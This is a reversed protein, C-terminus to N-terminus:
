NRGLVKPDTGNNSLPLPKFQALNHLRGVLVHGEYEVWAHAELSGQGERLVGIRLESPQGLRSLLARTALAQPLCTAKGPVCRAAATVAWAVRGALPPNLDALVMPKPALRDLTRLVTRFPLWRLATKVLFVIAFAGGLLLRESATM